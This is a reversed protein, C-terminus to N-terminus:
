PVPDAGSKAKGKKPKEGMPRLVTDRMKRMYRIPSKTGNRYALDMATCGYTFDDRDYGYKDALDDLVLMGDSSGLIRKYAQALARAALRRKEAEEAQTTTTPTQDPPM